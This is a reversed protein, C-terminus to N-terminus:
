QQAHDQEKTWGAAAALPKMRAIYDLERARREDLTMGLLQDHEIHCGPMLPRTCCLPFTDRDSAKQGLGRGQDPHAAQSYGHIGCAMCPLTAVWRRYPEDRVPVDKPRAQETAIVAMRAPRARYTGSAISSLLMGRQAPSRPKRTLM